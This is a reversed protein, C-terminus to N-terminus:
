RKCALYCTEDCDKKGWSQELYSYNTLQEQISNGVPHIRQNVGQYCCPLIEGRVNVYIRHDRKVECDIIVGTHDPQLNFPEYLLSIALADDIVIPEVERDHPLLWNIITGTNDRIPGYNREDNVLEFKKFGMDLSLQRAEEIQHANHKFIVFKWTAYGGAAIFATAREMVREWVVDQRYIHNTDSLGDISFVISGHHVKKWEDIDIKATPYFKKMYEIDKNANFIMYKAIQTYTEIKGVGGNTVVQASRFLNVMDHIKPHMMPDGHNGSLLAFRLGPLESVIERLREIDM